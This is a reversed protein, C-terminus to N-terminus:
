ALLHERVWAIIADSEYLIDGDISLAPVQGKGGRQILEARAGPERLTDREPIAVDHQALFRRVKQCYPCSEYHYLVLEHTQM